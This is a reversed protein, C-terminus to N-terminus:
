REACTPMTAATSISFACSSGDGSPARLRRRLGRAHDAYGNYDLDMALFAAEAAVDGYRFRKNFEICDFIIIGDALCIHEAHLDGHCDRIRHDRVRRQLLPREREM